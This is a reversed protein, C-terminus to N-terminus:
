DKSFFKIKDLWSIKRELIFIDIILLIFIIWAIITFQEANASYKVNEFNTKGLTDLKKIINDIVSSNNGNVYIGNGVKAIEQAIEENLRTTVPNGNNDKLYNGKTGDIPIPSGQPTGLGIVNIQIGKDQAAKAMEIANDEFNEADTLLIIAKNVDSDASFSNTAMNIAAGIATGQKPVINPSLERLYMKTSLYDSTLPIQTYADGAFVILGVKDNDLKDVLKELVLKARQLRSIGNQSHDNTSFGLMSNSVDLAIAVEIGASTNEEVEEKNGALPRALLVVMLAIIFLEFTLKIGHKYKSYNPMLKTIVNIHGFTKLKQMRWYRYWYYLVTILPIFILLLYLLNPNAFEFM